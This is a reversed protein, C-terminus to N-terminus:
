KVSSKYTCVSRSTLLIGCAEITEEKVFSRLCLRRRQGYHFHLRICHTHDEGAQRVLFFRHSVVGLGVSETNDTCNFFSEPKPSPTNSRAHASSFIERRENGPVRAPQSLTGDGPGSLSIKPQSRCEKRELLFTETERTLPGPNRGRNYPRSVCFPPLRSLGTTCHVSPLSILRACFLQRAHLARFSLSLLELVLSTGTKTGCLRRM